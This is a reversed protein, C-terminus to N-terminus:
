SNENGNTGEMFIPCSLQYDCWGCLPTKNPKTLDTLKEANKNLFATVRDLLVETNTIDILKPAMEIKRDRIFHVGLQVQEIDPWLTKTLLCYVDFQATYYRLGRNKGSKHDLIVAIPKDKLRATLDMVGRIYGNANDFFKVSEGSLNVAAKKEIDVDIIGHNKKYRDFRKLFEAMNPVLDSVRDEEEQTLEYEEFTLELARRLTIGTGLALELTKHAAQGIIADSKRPRSGKEKLVYKKNFQLPCNHATNAKSVSWPTYERVLDTPEHM